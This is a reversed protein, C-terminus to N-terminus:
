GPHVVLGAPKNLILIDEDEYIIDLPITEAQWPTEGTETMTLLITENGNVKDRPRMDKGNIRLAGALLWSKLRARSFEPFIKALAQDLRLGALELPVSRTYSSPSPHNPM